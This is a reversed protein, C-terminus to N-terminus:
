KCIGKDFNSLLIRIKRYHEPGYFGDFDSTVWTTDSESGLLNLLHLLRFYEDRSSILVMDKIYMPILKWQWLYEADIPDLVRRDDM